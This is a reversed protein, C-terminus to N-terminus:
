WRVSLHALARREILDGGFIQYHEQNFLNSVNVGVEFRQNIDYNVNLDVLDFAPVRGAFVGANWDYADSHRFKVSGNWKGGLYSIGAGYKNEATNPLLPDATIQQTIDFDFWSYNADLLWENTIYYNFGIEVGQTDVEGFNTYSLAALLATGDLPSNSLLAYSPGLAGRLTADLIGAFPAPIGAPVQYPGFNPNIRGLTPNVPTILDTIFNEIKNNYYDVTLFAKGGIISSYGLEWSKVKEVDLSPNGLALVPIANFGCTVGFPACFAGELPATATISPAVPVRLFFESYNPTQFAEGYNVRLINNPNISYVLAARPSFQSDNLSSDDWRAAVVGKLKDTFDYELQGFVGQFDAELPEFILTQFGQPNVSDINEESYSVGGILQGKGGGFGVNGQVEILSRDSDLYLPIGSSLSRQDDGTRENRYALVNWHPTNFNARVYPRKVDLGQVRGIGTVQLPGKSVGDGVEFTLSPGNAFYKDVRASGYYVENDERVLPLRELSLGPYEVTVNRSRSFDDSSTYGASVRGFWSSSLAGGLRFDVRQTNLDGGTLKLLGGRNDRPARTVMNIVGNFADAGYLASGPGRVLEISALEDLSFPLTSWEQSGLFQASPDRGDILVLIRRNLSSNFGRANFNFDYVGSQTAEAGPTYELLKPVQGSAAEREIVEQPIITIAAPAEVIRETRRSASYVTITELFSVNWDVVKELKTTSGAVVAVGDEAVSNDGLTFTLTYEGARVREFVYSGRANTVTVLGLQDIVVAVGGVGSGDERQVSGEIRGFDQAFLAPTVLLLGVVLAVAVRHNRM